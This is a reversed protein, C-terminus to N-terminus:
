ARAAALHPARAYEQEFSCLHKAAWDHRWDIAVDRIRQGFRGKTLVPVTLWRVSEGAAIRNRNRWDNKTYQVDDFWVLLDCRDILDFTGIWPIYNPQLIVVTKSGAANGVAM